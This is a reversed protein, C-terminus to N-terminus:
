RARAFRAGLKARARHVEVRTERAFSATSRDRAPARRAAENGCAGRHERSGQVGDGERAGEARVVVTARASPSVSASAAGAGTLTRRNSSARARHPIADRVNPRHSSARSRATPRVVARFQPHSFNAASRRRRSPARALARARPLPSPSRPTSVIACRIERRPEFIQTIQQTTVRWDHPNPSRARSSVLRATVSSSHTNKHTKCFAARM